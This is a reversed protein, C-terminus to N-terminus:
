GKLVSLFSVALVFVTFIFLQQDKISELIAGLFEYNYLDALSILTYIASFVGFPVLVLNHLPNRRGASTSELVYLYLFAPFLFEIALYEFIEIFFPYTVLETIRLVILALSILAIALFLNPRSQYKKSTILLTAFFLSLNVGAITIFEKLEMEM